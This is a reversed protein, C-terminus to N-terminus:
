VKIQTLVSASFDDVRKTAPAPLSGPRPHQDSARGGAASKKARSCASGHASPGSGAPPCRCEHESHSARQCRCCSRPTHPPPPTILSDRCGKTAQLRAPASTELEQKSHQLWRYAHADCGEARQQQQQKTFSERHRGSSM